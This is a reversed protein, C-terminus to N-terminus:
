FFEEPLACRQTAQREGSTLSGGDLAFTPWQGHSSKM